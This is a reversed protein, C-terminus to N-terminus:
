QVASSFSTFRTTLEPVQFLDSGPTPASGFIGAFGSILCYAVSSPGPPGWTTPTRVTSDRQNRNLLQSNPRAPHAQRGHILLVMTKRWLDDSPCNPQIEPKRQAQSQDLLHQQFAADNSGIFGGASPAPFEAGGIRPLQAALFRRMTVDPMQILDHNGDAPSCMPKPARNVLASVNEILDYM